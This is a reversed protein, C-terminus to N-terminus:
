KGPLSFGGPQGPAGYGPFGPFGPYGQPAGPPMQGGPAMGPQGYMLFPNFMSADAPFMGQPLAQGSKTLLENLARKRRAKRYTYNPHQQKFEEQAVAAEQKFRLKTEPGVEKWMKGLLRSVEINSMAPNEQRVASRMSQSYLIFANPPRHSTDGDPDDAPAPTPAAATTQWQTPYMSFIAPIKSLWNLIESSNM